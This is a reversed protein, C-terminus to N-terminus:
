IIYKPNKSPMEEIEKRKKEYGKRGLIGCAYQKGEEVGPQDFPNIRYLGGTFATQVEFMYLLQGVTFPNINNLTIKCNPRKNKTLTLETAMQEASILENLTHGGLYGVGDMEPYLNPINIKEQYKEVVLFTIVKDYPGEVYLQLQSHQDTVGLAKVPTPGIRVVEGSLSYKKGLSEAWLQRYWDAVDKLGDAYPMMVSIRKGKKLDSLYHLVGNMYAPNEWVNSKQCVEDMLEAGALLQTIDIGIAAAPLLGVPTLVSFRGGVGSPIIFDRYGEQNVIKRLNGTQKDTTIIFHDKVEERNLKEEFWEKMILFQSMTEATEGSKSIVNCVTDKPNLLRLLAKFGDPDINDAVFLRLNGEREQKSLLNHFPSTLARKLAIAGLASGGIGLVVFNDFRSKLQTVFDHIEKLLEDQYPLDFFPLKGEERKQKLEQDVRSIEESLDEIMSETIGHEEGIAEAMMNNFDFTIRQNKTSEKGGMMGGEKQFM